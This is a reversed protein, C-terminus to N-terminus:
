VSYKSSDQNALLYNPVDAFTPKLRYTGPGPFGDKDNNKRISTGFSANFKTKGMNLAKSEM